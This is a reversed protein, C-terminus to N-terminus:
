LSSRIAAVVQEARQQAWREDEGTWYSAVIGTGFRFTLVGEGATVRVSHRLKAPDSTLLKGKFGMELVSPEQARPEYGLKALEEAALALARPVDGSFAVQVECGNIVM